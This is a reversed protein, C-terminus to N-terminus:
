ARQSSPSPSCGVLFAVFTLFTGLALFGWAGFMIGPVLVSRAPNKPDVWVVLQDTTNHVIQAVKGEDATGFAVKNGEYTQGGYSYSYKQISTRSGMGKPSSSTRRWSILVGNVQEWSSAAQGMITWYLGLALCGMGSLLLFLAVLMQQVVQKM